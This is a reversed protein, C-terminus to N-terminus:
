ASKRSSTSVREYRRSILQFSLNAGHRDIAIYGIEDIILVPPQALLKLKEDLRNEALAKGFTTILGAATTFLARSM